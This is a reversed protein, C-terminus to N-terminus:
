KFGVTKEIVYVKDKNKYYYTDALRRLFASLKNEPFRLMLTIYTLDFLGRLLREAGYHSVGNPRVRHKIKVEGFKYGKSAAIAVIYRHFNGYMPLSKVVEKKYGKFGSGFDHAEVSTMLRALANSIQSPVKKGFKEKSRDFRWTSVFDYGEKEIKDVIAPIDEPAHELDSDMTIILNGSAYDFGAKTAATQGCNKALRLIKLNPDNKALRLLNKFTKDTSHDDVFIIEHSWSQQSFIAKLRKYLEKVNNEENHCPLVVSIYCNEKEM